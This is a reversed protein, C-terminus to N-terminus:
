GGGRGRRVGAELLREWDDLFREEGFRRVARAQAADGMARRADADRLMTVIAEALEGDDFGTVIGARPEGDAPDLAERAGSVDTSVVPLGFAMAELMANALGERDSSVVFLDLADLVDGVDARFGTFHVRDAIGLEVALARTSELTEGEGAIVCHITDTRLQGSNGIGQERNGATRAVARMMRDFRKQKALRAVCGIVFADAPIGLERRVAGPEKSRVPARVGDLLTVVRAPDLHPDGALFAPRMADANLTIVDVFRRLALRYRAGRAPTDGQLVIRQVVFPAGAMRAGLGALFVKKFTTLIVADPQERRFRAALRFADPLMADGGVRQIGTPIGYEAVRRAIEEDRCLMRVRHGRRQLGALLLATGIEGGGLIGSANHALIFM